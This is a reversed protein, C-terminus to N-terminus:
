SRKSSAASFGSNSLPSTPIWPASGPEHHNATIDHIISFLCEQGDIRYPTANVEVDRIEGSALRHCARFRRKEYALIDLHNKRVETEPLTTIETIRMDLFDDPSWGYFACAAPNADIIRLSVPDVLLMVAGNDEFLARYRRESLMVKQRSVLLIACILFLLLLICLLPVPHDPFLLSLQEGPLDAAEVAPSRTLLILGAVAPMVAVGPRSRLRHRWQAYRCGTM